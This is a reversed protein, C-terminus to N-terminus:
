PQRQFHMFHEVQSVYAIEVLLPTKFELTAHNLQPFRDFLKDLRERFERYVDVTVSFAANRDILDIVIRMSYVWPSYQLFSDSVGFGTVEFGVSAFDVAEIVAAVEATEYGYPMWTFLPRMDSTSVLFPIHHFIRDEHCWIGEIGLGNRTRTLQANKYSTQGDYREIKQVRFSVAMLEEFHGFLLESQLALVLEAEYCWFTDVLVYEFALSYPQLMVEHTDFEHSFLHHAQGGLSGWNLHWGEPLPYNRLSSVLLRFAEGEVTQPDLNMLATAHEPPFGRAWATSFKHYDSSARVFRSAPPEPTVCEIATPVIEANEKEDEALSQLFVTENGPSYIDGSTGQGCGSMALFLVIALGLPVFVVKKFKCM